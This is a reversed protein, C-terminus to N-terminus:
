RIAVSRRGDVLEQGDEAYALTDVEVVRVASEWGDFFFTVM